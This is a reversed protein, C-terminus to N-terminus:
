VAHTRNPHRDAATAARTTIATATAPQPPPELVPLEAVCPML